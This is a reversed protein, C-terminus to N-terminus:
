ENITGRLFRYMCITAFITTVPILISFCANAIENLIIESM